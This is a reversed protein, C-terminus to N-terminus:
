SRELAVSYLIKKGQDSILPIDSNIDTNSVNFSIHMRRTEASNIYWGNAIGGHPKITLTSGNDLDKVTLCRWHPLTNSTKTDISYDWDTEGLLEDITNKCDEHSRFQDTLRRYTDDYARGGPINFEENTFVIKASAEGGLKVIFAKIFQLLQVVGLTTKLHEDMYNFEIRHGHAMQIFHDIQHSDDLSILLNLLGKPSDLKTGPEIHFEKYQSLVPTFARVAPKQTQEAYINGNGWNGNFQVSERDDTFYLWGDIYALPYIGDFVPEALGFSAWDEPHKIVDAAEIPIVGPDGLFAIETKTPGSLKFDIRTDKWSPIATEPMEYNWSRIDPLVFLTAETGNKLSELIYALSTRIANNHANLINDPIPNRSALEEELWSYTALVDVDELYRMTSRSLISEIGKGRIIIDELRKKCLGLMKIWYTSDLHSSYGAGGKATDYICLAREGRNVTTVLFDIDQIQCPLKRSLEDCVIIGLTILISEDKRNQKGFPITRNNANHRPKLISFNTLISGGIFMNRELDTGNQDFKDWKDTRLNKHEYTKVTKANNSNTTEYKEYMLDRVYQTDGSKKLQTEIEARGCADKKCICYGCGTGENLYLIKTEANPVENDFEILPCGQIQNFKLGNTSILKTEVIIKDKKEQRIRDTSKEPIFAIPEIMDHHRINTGKCSPCVSSALDWTYGCDKCIYVNQYSKSRDWDVGASTYCKGDITIKNGPAFETLAVVLNRTPNDYQKKDFQKEPNCLISVINDPMNANPTFQHTSFFELLPQTLISIFEYNLRKAYGAINGNWNLNLDPRTAENNLTILQNKIYAFSDELYNLTAKLLNGNDDKKKATGAKILDLNNWIKVNGNTNLRLDQLWNKFGEFISNHHFDDNYTNPFISPSGLNPTTDCLTRIKNISRIDYKSDFFFDLINYNKISRNTIPNNDTILYERLLYSNIHRQIVQPSKLDASPTMVEKELLNEKPNEMVSIGVADSNCITICASRNQFARGARGARQKYNAPHPPVNTMTVIELEGIDVGMEMTTSCALINIDHNKFNSIRKKALERGVQATHELQIYIPEARYIDRSMRCSLFEVGNNNYFEDLVGPDSTYPPSWPSIKKLDQRNKIYDDPYPSYGKFATDLIVKVNPDCYAEDLLRFSIEDVNLRYNTRKKKKDDKDLNDDTWRNNVYKQGITVLSIDILKNWMEKVVATVKGPLTADLNRLQEENDCGFLRWLLKYHVGHEFEPDKISRRLGYTSKLNRCADIDLSNWDRVPSKFFLNENTRVNFDLYIKLLGKWDNIDIPEKGRNTLESNLTNVSLPLETVEDLRAYHTKFLGYSEPSFGKKSRQKMTNYLAALVYRKKYEPSLVINHHNDEIWDDDKAFCAALKECNSDAQLEELVKQWTLDRGYNHLRDMIVSIVWRYETDLNQELSPEAAGRRSDAFSIFQQGYHPHKGDHKATNNLISPSISRSCSSVSVNFGKIDDSDAGCCPCEAGASMLASSRATKPVIVNGAAIDCQIANPQPKITPNDIAIFHDEGIDRSYKNDDIRCYALVAGCKACHRLSVYRSDPKYTNRDLPIKPTMDFQPDEQMIDELNAFLGNTLAETYFHAKVKLGGECLRDLEELRDEVTSKYPILENLYVYGSRDLLSLLRAKKDDEITALSFDPTSRHGKIINVQKKEKDQGTIGYIFQLLEDDSDGVTASSTAFHIDGANRDFAKLVRRILMALEDAGAGNYTHTEDIVIWSLTPSIEISKEIIKEDAKRLLLYELMTPNTLIIDPVRGGSELCGNGDNWKKTGQIEERYVLEHDLRSYNRNNGDEWNPSTGNYVAFTLKSESKEIMDNLKEKQDEMLANLPYLFIAKLGETDSRKSLDTILPVMFSETKGSGTGTTVVMSKYTTNEGLLTDWCEVQHKYPLFKLLSSNIIKTYDKGGKYIPEAGEWPSMNEVLIKDSITNDIIRELQDQYKSDFKAGKPQWQELLAAKLKDKTDRYLNLFKLEQKQGVNLILQVLLSYLMREGEGPMNSEKPYGSVLELCYRIVNYSNRDIHKAKQSYEGLIKQLKHANANTKSEDYIYHGFRTAAQHGDESKLENEAFHLIDGYTNNGTVTFANDFFYLAACEVLPEEIERIYHGGNMGSSQDFFARMLERVLIYCFLHEPNYGKTHAVNNINNTFITIGKTQPNYEGLKLAGAERKQIAGNELATSLRSIEYIIAKYDENDPDAGQLKEISHSYELIRQKLGDWYTQDYRAEPNNSFQINTIHDQCLAKIDLPIEEGSNGELYLPISGISEISRQVLNNFDIDFINNFPM